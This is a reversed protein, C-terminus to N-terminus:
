GGKSKWFAVFKGKKGTNGTLTVEDGVDAKIFELLELPISFVKSGGDNRINAKFQIKDKEM